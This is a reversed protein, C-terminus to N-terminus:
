EGNKEDLIDSLKEMVFLMGKHYARYYVLTATQEATREPLSELAQIEKNVVQLQIRIENNM